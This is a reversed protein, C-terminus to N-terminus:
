RREGSAAHRIGEIIRRDNAREGQRAASREGQAGERVICSFCGLSDARTVAACCAATQGQLACPTMAGLHDLCAEVMETESEPVAHPLAAYAPALLQMVVAGLLLLGGLLPAKRPAPVPAM